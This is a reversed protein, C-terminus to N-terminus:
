RNLQTLEVQASKFDPAAILAKEIWNRAGDIDGRIRLEHGMLLYAEAHGWGPADNGTASSREFIAVCEELERPIPPRPNVPRIKGLARVLLVRPNRPALKSARDIRETARARLLSAQLKKISALEVYCLSQLVLAESSNEATKLLEDLQSVCEELREKGTSGMLQAMRYDAHALHYRTAVSPSGAQISESLTRQIERLTALDQTQSAYLIRAQLDGGEQARVACVLMVTSACVTLFRRKIKISELGM